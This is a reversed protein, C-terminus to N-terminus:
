GTKRARRERAAHALVDLDGLTARVENLTESLFVEIRQLQKHTTHLQETLADAGEKTSPDTTSGPLSLDPGTLGLKAEAAALAGEVKRLMDVRVNKDNEIKWVVSRSVRARKALETQIWGVRERRLAIQKGETIVIGPDHCEAQATELGLGM